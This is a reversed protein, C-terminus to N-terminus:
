IIGQTLFKSQSIFDWKPFDSQYFLLYDYVENNFFDVGINWRANAIRNVIKESTKISNSSRTQITGLDSDSYMDEKKWVCYVFYTLMKRVGLFLTVDGNNDTYTKGNVLDIFKQTQPLNNADLDSILENYTEDGLLGRLIDKEVEFAFENFGSEIVDSIVLNTFGIYNDKTTINKPM